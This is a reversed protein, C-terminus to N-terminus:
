VTVQVCRAAQKNLNIQFEGSSAHAFYLESLQTYALFYYCSHGSLGTKHLSCSQQFLISASTVNAHPALSLRCSLFMSFPKICALNLFKPFVPNSQSFM